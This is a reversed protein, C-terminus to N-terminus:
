GRLLFNRQVFCAGGAVRIRDCLREAVPRTDAGIRVQYFPRTGRSRYIGALLSTDQDGIVPRLRRMERAYIGLAQDRDFGAALQVGWPKAVSLRTREELKSVFPTPATKLWAILDRCGAPGAVDRLGAGRGAGVWDDVSMGTVSLVYDRAERPIATRGTLWARLQAPGLRYAATALGLNGFQARLESLFEAARPLAQVPNFPDLRWARMAASAPEGDVEFHGEQWIMRAFYQLPLDNAKAASEIMLCLAETAEADADTMALAAENAVRPGASAPLMPLCALAVVFFASLRIGIFVRVAM